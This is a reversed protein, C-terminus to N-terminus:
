PNNKLLYNGAEVHAPVRELVQAYAAQAKKVNGQWAEGRALYVLANADSPYRAALEAAHQALENWKRLGEECVLLRSHATYDWASAAIVKKLEVEAEKWRQQAMLPLSLALRAELSRPNLLLAQNYDRLAENHRGQLYSLWARRMLAFDNNPSERLVPELAQAAQAYKGAAEQKYSEQWATTAGKSGQACCLGSSLLLAIALCRFSNKM